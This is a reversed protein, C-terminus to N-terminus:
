TIEWAQILHSVEKIMAQQVRGKLTRVSSEALNLEKAINKNDQGALSRKFVEMAAGNFHQECNKLAKQTLNQKWDREIIAELESESIPQPDQSKLHDIKSQYRRQAKKSNFVQHRIITSLWTRFKARKQDPEFNSLNKWIAILVDQSVDEADASAVQMKSIVMRVFSGYYEVFEDWAM